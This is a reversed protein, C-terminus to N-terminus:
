IILNRIMEIIVFVFLIFFMSFIIFRICSELYYEKEMKLLDLTINLYTMSDLNITKKLKELRKEYFYLSISTKIYKYLSLIM